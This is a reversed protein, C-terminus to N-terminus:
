FIPGLRSQRILSSIYCEEGQKPASTRAAAQGFGMPAATHSSLYAGSFGGQAITQVM